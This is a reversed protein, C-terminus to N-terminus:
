LHLGDRHRQRRHNSQRSTWRDYGFLDAPKGSPPAERQERPREQYAGSAAQEQPGPRAPTWAMPSRSLMPRWPEGQRAHLPVHRKLVM